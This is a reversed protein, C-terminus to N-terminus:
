AAKGYEVLGMSIGDREVREVVREVKRVVDMEVFDDGCQDCVLAPVHTVVIVNGDDLTFPLNTTGPVMKGKCLPCKM